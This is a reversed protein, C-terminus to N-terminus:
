PLRVEASLIWSSRADLCPEAIELATAIGSKSVQHKLQRTGVDALRDIIGSSGSQGPAGEVDVTTIRVPTITILDRDQDDARSVGSISLTLAATVAIAGALASNSPKSM